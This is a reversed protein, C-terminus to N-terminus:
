CGTDVEGKAQLIFSFLVCGRCMGLSATFYNSQKSFGVFSVFVDQSGPLPWSSFM